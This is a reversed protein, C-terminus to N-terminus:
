IVLFFFHKKCRYSHKNTPLRRRLQFTVRTHSLNKEVVTATINILDRPLLPRGMLTFDKSGILLAKELKIRSGLPAGIDYNLMLLDGSTVKHQHFEMAVVAFLRGYSQDAIQANVKDITEIDIVFSVEYKLSSSIFCQKGQTLQKDKEELHDMVVQEQHESAHFGRGLGAGLVEPPKCRLTRVPTTTLASPTLNSGNFYSNLATRVALRSSIRSLVSSAM